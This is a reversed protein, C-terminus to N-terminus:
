SGSVDGSAHLAISAGEDRAGGLLPAAGPGLLHAESQSTALGVADGTGALAPEHGWQLTWRHTGTGM